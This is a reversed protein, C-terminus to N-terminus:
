GCLYESGFNSLDAGKGEREQSTVEHMKLVDGGNKSYAKETSLNNAKSCAFSLRGNDESKHTKEMVSGM